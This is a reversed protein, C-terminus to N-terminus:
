GDATYLGYGAPGYCWETQVQEGAGLDSNRAVWAAAIAFVALLAMWSVVYFLAIGHLSVKGGSRTQKSVIALM